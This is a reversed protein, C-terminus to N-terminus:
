MLEKKFLQLMKETHEIDIKPLRHEVKNKIKRLIPQWEKLAKYCTDAMDQSSWEILCASKLDKPKWSLLKDILDIGLTLYDDNAQELSFIAEYKEPTPPYLTTFGHRIGVSAADELSIRYKEGREKWYYLEGDVWDMANGILLFWHSLVQTRNQFLTPYCRITKLLEKDAKTPFYVSLKPKM